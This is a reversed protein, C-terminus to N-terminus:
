GAPHRLVPLEDNVLDAGRTQSSLNFSAVQENPMLMEGGIISYGIPKARLAAWTYALVCVTIAFASPLM